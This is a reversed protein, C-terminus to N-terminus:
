RALERSDIVRPQFNRDGDDSGDEPMIEKTADSRTHELDVDFGWRAAIRRANIFRPLATSWDTPLTALADLTPVYNRAQPSRVLDAPPLANVSSPKSYPYPWQMVFHFIFHFLCAREAAEPSIRTVADNRALSQLKKFYDERDAPDVTFGRRGYYVQTGLLVTRGQMAMELGVTSSFVVGFKCHEMLPYSNIPSEGPVVVLRDSELCAEALTRESREAHYRAEGPHARVVVALDTNELLYRVTAVLWERMSPFITLLGNYGADFPVNTGVFVYPRDPGLGLGTLTEAIDGAMAQQHKWAWTKTSALRREDLLERARACARSHFPEQEFGLERRRNWVADVDDFALFQDGHNMVRVFRFAFKELANVQVGIRRAVHCFHAAEFTAGNPIICLDYDGKHRSFHTWATRQARRGLDMYYAFSHAVEPDSMDLKERKLRIVMDSRVQDKLFEEDVPVSEDVDDSLDLCRIRGGTLQEITGLAAKLYPKASVHDGLPEKIPSQLKPLYGVTVRHGRWALLVALALDHTFQIRYATFLFLRRPAPLPEIPPVDLAKIWERAFVHLNWKDNPGVFRVLPGLLSIVRRAAPGPHRHAYYWDPWLGATYRLRRRVREFFTLDTPV